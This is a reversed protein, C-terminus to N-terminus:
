LTSDKIKGSAILAYMSRIMGREFETCANNDVWLQLSQASERGALLEETAWDYGKSYQKLEKREQWDRYLKKIINM